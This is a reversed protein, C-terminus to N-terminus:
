REQKGDNDVQVTRRYKLHWGSVSSNGSRPYGGWPELPDELSPDGNIVLRALNGLCTWDAADPSPGLVAACLPYRNTLWLSRFEAATGPAAWLVPAFVGERVLASDLSPELVLTPDLSSEDGKGGQSIQGGCNSIVELCWQVAKDDALGSRAPDLRLHEIVSGYISPHILAGNVSTCTQGNYRTAGGSLIKAAQAPDTGEDVYVWTNGEGDAILSKGAEFCRSLLDPIRGSGGFYHVLGPSPWVLFAELLDRAPAKALIANVDVTLCEALIKATGSSGSPVRLVVRNGSDLGHLLCALGLYLFANQPLITLVTGVPVSHMELHRRSTSELCLNPTRTSKFAGLFDLCGEVTDEADERVFQAESMCLAVLEARRQALRTRLSVALSEAGTNAPDERTDAFM